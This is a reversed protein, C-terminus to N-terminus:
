FVVYEQRANIRLELNVICTYKAQFIDLELDSILDDSVTHGKTDAAYQILSERLQQLQQVANMPLLQASLLFVEYARMALIGLQGRIIMGESLGFLLIIWLRTKASDIEM